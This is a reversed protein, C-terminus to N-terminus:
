NGKNMVLIVPLIITSYLIGAIFLKITWNNLNDSINFCKEAQENGNDNIAFNCGEKSYKISYVQFLLTIAFLIISLLYLLFYIINNFNIDKGILFTISTVTVTFIGKELFRSNEKYYEDYLKIKNNNELEKVMYNRM